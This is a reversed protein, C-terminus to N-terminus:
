FHTSVILKYSGFDSNYYYNFFLHSHFLLIIILKHEFLVKSSIVVVFTQLVKGESRPYIIM